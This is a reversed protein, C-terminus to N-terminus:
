NRVLLFGLAIVTVIWVLAFVFTIRNLNREAASSGLYALQVNADQGAVSIELRAAGVLRALFPRVINIGQIRDLRGRRNTRFLIGSRM